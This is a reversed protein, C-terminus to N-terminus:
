QPKNWWDTNNIGGSTVWGSFGSYVNNIDIGENPCQWNIVGVLCIGWVLNDKCVYPDNGTSLIDNEGEPMVIDAKKKFGKLHIEKGDAVIYFDINGQTFFSENKPTSLIIMKQPLAINLNTNYKTGTAQSVNDCLDITQGDLEVKLAIQKDAGVATITANIIATSLDNLSKGEGRVELKVVVDNMDYDGFDPWQDEMAYIGTFTKSAGTNDEPEHGSNGGNATGSCTEIVVKSKDYTAMSAQKGDYILLKYYNGNSDDTHKSSEVALNGQYIAGGWGCDITLGKILSTNNGDAQYIVNYVNKISEAKIMSGDHMSIRVNNFIFDKAVIQGQTLNISGQGLDCSFTEDVIMDCNNNITPGATLTMKGSHVCGENTLVCSNTFEMLGTCDITGANYLNVQSDYKLSETKILGLNYSDGMNTLYLFKTQIEGGEMVAFTSSGVFSITQNEDIIKGGKLIIVDLGNEFKNHWYNDGPAVKWVGAVFLRCRGNGNNSGYYYIGGKYPNEDTGTIYYDKGSNLLDGNGSGTVLKAGEPVKDYIPLNTKARSAVSRGADAKTVSGFNYYATKDGVEISTTLSRGRPDTETVFLTQCTKSVDLSVVFPENQKAYGTALCIANGNTLPNGLFIEVGYYYQGLYEDNVDITATIIKKTSWDFDDPAVIELPNKGQDSDPNYLDEHKSCSTIILLSVLLSVFKEM